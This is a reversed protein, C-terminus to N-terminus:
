HVEGSPLYTGKVGDEEGECDLERRSKGEMRSNNEGKM